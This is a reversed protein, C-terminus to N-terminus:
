RPCDAAACNYLIILRTGAHNNALWQCLVSLLLAGAREQCYEAAFETDTEISLNKPVSRHNEPPVIKRVCHLKKM